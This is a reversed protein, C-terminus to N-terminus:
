SLGQMWYHKPFLPTETTSLTCKPDAAHLAPGINNKDPWQFLKIM